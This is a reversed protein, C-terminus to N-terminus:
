RRETSTPQGRMAITSSMWSRRVFNAALRLQHQGGGVVAPGDIATIDNRGEPPTLGVPRLEHDQYKPMRFRRATALAPEARKCSRTITSSQNLLERGGAAPEDYAFLDRTYCDLHEAGSRAEEYYALLQSGVPAVPEWGAFWHVDRGEAHYETSRGLGYSYGFESGRHYNNTVGATDQSLVSTGM